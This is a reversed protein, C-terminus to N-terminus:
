NALLRGGDVRVVEGTVYSNTLLFMITQTISEPSGTEQLPIKELIAQQQGPQSSDSNEPWLIAGPAIGNVRVQPAMELALSKVLMQNAAKACCYLSHDKLPLSAYIDLMNVIVGKAKRLSPYCAQSLFLPAKLNSSLLDEWDHETIKGLPTPYFSSANNILIDLNGFAQNAKQSFNEIEGLNSFEAQLSCASGPRLANFQHELLEASDTSKRYHIILNAGNEHLTRAIQAGIRNAAGTVLATKGALLM